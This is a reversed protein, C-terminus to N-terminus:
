KKDLVVVINGEEELDMSKITLKAQREVKGNTLKLFDDVSSLKNSLALGPVQYHMPITIKPSISKVVELAEKADITYVGGVPVMLIDIDGIIEIQKEGLTHGLDGLHVIRLDEVEIVFITNAGREEGKKDDHFSAIGILSIGGIEYEGPGEIVKKTDTVLDSRNHDDHQHSITVLDASTKSFKLGTKKPDFPDTVVTGQKSKIKFSAHGLYTIDM